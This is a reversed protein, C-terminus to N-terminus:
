PRKIPESGLSNLSEVSTVYRYYSLRSAPYLILAIVIFAPGARLARKKWTNTTGKNPGCAVWSLCFIMIAILTNGYFQYPRKDNQEAMVLANLRGEDVFRSYIPDHRTLPENQPCDTKDWLPCPYIASVHFSADVMAFRLSSIMMGLVIALAVITLTSVVRHEHKDVEALLTDVYGVWFRLAMLLIFGPVFYAILLGFDLSLEPM